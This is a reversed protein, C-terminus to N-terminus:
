AASQLDAYGLEIRPWAELSRLPIGQGEATADPATELDTEVAVDAFRSQLSRFVQEQGKSRDAESGYLGWRPQGIDLRPQWMSTVRVTACEPLSAWLSLPDPALQTAREAWPFSWM